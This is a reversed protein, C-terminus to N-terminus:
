WCASPGSCPCGNACWSDNKTTCLNLIKCRTDPYVAVILWRVHHHGLETALNTFIVYYIVLNVTPNKHHHFIIFYGYSSPFLGASWQARWGHSIEVKRSCRVQSPHNEGCWGMWAENPIGFIHEFCHSCCVKEPQREMRLASFFWRQEGRATPQPPLLRHDPDCHCDPALPSHSRQPLPSPRVM